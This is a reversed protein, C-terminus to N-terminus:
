CSIAQTGQELCIVRNNEISYYGIRNNDVKAKCCLNNATNKALTNYSNQMNALENTKDQLSSEVRKKEEECGKESSDLKEKLKTYNVECELLNATLGELQSMINSNFFYCSSLNVEATSVQAELEKLNKSYDAVSLNSEAAQKYVSYGAWFPRVIFVIVAIVFILTAIVLYIDYKSKQEM